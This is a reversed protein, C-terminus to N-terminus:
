DRLTWGAHTALYKGLRDVNRRDNMERLLKRKKGNVRAALEFHDDGDSDRYSTMELSDHDFPTESRFGPFTLWSSLSDRAVLWGRRSFAGWIALAGFLVSVTLSTLLGWPPLDDFRILFALPVIAILVCLALCGPGELQRVEIRLRAGDPLARWGRPLTVAAEPPKTFRSLIWDREETGAFGTLIVDRDELEAVLQGSHSIFVDRLASVPIRTTPGIGLVGRRVRWEDRAIGIEDHGALSRLLIMAVMVGGLTWLVLWLTIFLVSVWTAPVVDDGGIRPMWFLVWGAAVEGAAWGSLWITLFIAQVWRGYGRERLVIM